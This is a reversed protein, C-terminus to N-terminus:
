EVYLKIREPDYSWDAPLRGSRKYHKVLRNVKSETLRLGRKATMDQKNAELHKKVFVVKKILALVDDPIEPQMKKGALIQSITKGTVLKVSPIGYEDRMALGIQAATKGEKAYKVILLETEKANQGLWAPKKPEKPKTSGSKGKKRSHMRAM